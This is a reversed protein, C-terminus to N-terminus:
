WTGVACACVCLNYTASGYLGVVLADCIFASSVLYAVGANALAANRKRLADDAALSARLKLTTHWSALVFSASHEVVAAQMAGRLLDRQELAVEADALRQAM